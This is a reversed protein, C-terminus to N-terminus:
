GFREVLEAKTLADAEDHTLREGEPVAASSAYAVWDAKPAVQKPKDASDPAATPDSGGDSEDEGGGVREVFGLDLLHAAQGDSLEVTAGEYAHHVSGKADKVLICAATVRFTM